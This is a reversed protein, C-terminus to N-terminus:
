IYHDDNHDDNHDGGPGLPEVEEGLDGAAPIIALARLTTYMPLDIPEGPVVLEMGPELLASFGESLAARNAKVLLEVGDVSGYEQLAIDELVQGPQVIVTREAM